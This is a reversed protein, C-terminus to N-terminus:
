KRGGQNNRKAKKHAKHKKKKHAKHKKKHANKAPQKPNGLGQYSQSAASPQNPAQAAPGRCAEGECPAPEQSVPLGGEVRADYLDLRGDSDGPSLEQRTIFFADDGGASAGLFFSDDPSRGSSVLRVCGGAKRCNGVGNPEWEYVDQIKGNTDQPVLADQSEFFLRGDGEPPLNDIQRQEPAPAVPRLRSLDSQGIPRQGSPNCSACTLQGSEAAYEFVEPCRMTENKGSNNDHQTCANDYGTPQARSMFTLFRGDPTVQATRASTLARWSGFYHGFADDDERQVNLSRNAQLSAVFRTAGGHWYYLNVRGAEEFAGEGGANPAAGALAKPDVFYIRSLGESAGLIGEFGGQGATLDAAPAYASGAGNLAYLEGNSLLVESGGASATLFCARSALPVSTKCTGPGPVELTETGGIRVYTQGTEESTFFIRQGDASVSRDVDAPLAFNGNEILLQGSGLAAKGLAAANGPAVNVLRLGGGEWEYVDCPSFTCPHGVETVEPAPPAYATAPTLSDNAEFALHTFAGVTTTGANAAGYSVRFSDATEGGGPSRHPPEVTVMPEFSGGAWLYLNAFGIGRRTPALPSLPPTTQEMVGRGLDESFAQWSGRATLPSLDQISWGAESRNSLYENQGASLGESFPQGVYLVSNGDPSVQMPTMQEGEGPRCKFCSGGLEGQPEPVLVEGAKHTPTVMEYARCDPLFASFGQRLFANPCREGAGVEEPLAATALRRGPGETKDAGNTAVVRFRYATDPALGTILQSVPQPGTATLAAADVTTTAGKSLEIETPSQLSVIKTGAPIGPGEIEQGVGFRGATAIAATITLEGAELNGSGVVTSPIRRETLPAKSAGAFAESGPNALYAAETLYEVQFSTEEGNPDIEAVIQGSTAGVEEAREERVQPGPVTFTRDGGGIPSTTSANGALLQFHYTTGREVAIRARVPIFASGGLESPSHLPHWAGGEEYEACPVQKGYTVVEGYEFECGSLSLGNPNVKGTLTAAEAEVPAAPLTEVSPVRVKEWVQITTSGAQSVYVLERAGDVAIGTVLGGTPAFSRLPGSPATPESADYERVETSRASFLDGNTRDVDLSLSEGPDAVYKEEGSGSDLKAPGEGFQASFIFGDTSGTGAAVHGFSPRAFNSTSDANTVPNAFPGPVYKHVEGAAGGDFASVYVAGATDVAVGATLNLSNLPGSADPGEKFETLQGLYSGDSGFIDVLHEAFQTLYIDGATAGASPPAIAIEIERPNSGIDLGNQPTQDAGSAGDIVNSGLASFSDPTGDPKFRSLTKTVADAVLLDGSAPDVAMAMPEAFEPSCPATGIGTPECFAGRLNFGAASAGATALLFAVCIAAFIAPLM